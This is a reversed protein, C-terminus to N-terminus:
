ISKWLIYTQIIHIIIICFIYEVIIFFMQHFSFSTKKKYFVFFWFIKRLKTKLLFIYKSYEEIFYKSICIYCHACMKWVNYMCYTNLSTSLYTKQLILDPPRIFFNTISFFHELKTKAYKKLLKILLRFNWTIISRKM